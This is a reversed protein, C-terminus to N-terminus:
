RNGKFDTAPFVNGANGACSCVAIKRIQYAAWQDIGYIVATLYRIFWFKFKAYMKLHTNLFFTGFGRNVFVDHRWIKVFKLVIM